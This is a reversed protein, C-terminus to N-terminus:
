IRQMWSKLDMHDKLLWCVHTQSVLLNAVIMLSMFSIDQKGRMPFAVIVHKTQVVSALGHFVTLAVM